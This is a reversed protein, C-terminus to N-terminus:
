LSRNQKEMSPGTAVEAIIENVAKASKYSLAHTGEVTHLTAYPFRKIENLILEYPVNEDTKSAIIHLPARSYDAKPYPKSKFYTLQNTQITKSNTNPNEALLMDERKTPDIVPCVLVTFVPEEIVKLVNLALFGGSSCGILGVKNQYLTCLQQYFEKIDRLSADLSEKSFNLTFIDLEAEEAIAAAQEKNWNEDGQTFCGGHILLAAKKGQTGYQKYKIKYEIATTALLKEEVEETSPPTVTQNDNSFLKLRKSSRSQTM